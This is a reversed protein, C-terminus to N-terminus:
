EWSNLFLFAQCRFLHSCVTIVRTHLLQKKNMSQALVNQIKMKTRGEMLIQNM